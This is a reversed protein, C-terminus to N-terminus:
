PTVANKQELIEKLKTEVVQEIMRSLTDQSSNKNKMKIPEVTVTTPEDPNLSMHIATLPDLIMGCKTCYKSASGNGTGCRQCDAPQMRDEESDMKGKSSLGHMKLIANDVDRGSLHIYTRSMKSGIKWGLYHCLQPETLHNALRTARSHRFFHPHTPKTISTRGIIRRMRVRLASYTMPKCYYSKSTRVWLPANERDKMPHCDMWASLYPVSTILRIRRPGTKGYQIYLIVGLDDFAVNRTTLTLLEEVRAGSEYMVYFFAKDLPETSAAAMEDVEAQTLITEPMINKTYSKGKKLWKVCPPYEEDDGLLWKYFRKLLVRYDHKTAESIKKEQVENMLGQVDEKTVKDFDKDLMQGIKPLYVMYKVIRLKGMGTAHCSSCFKQIMQKNKESITKTEELWEKRREYRRERNYIDFRERM